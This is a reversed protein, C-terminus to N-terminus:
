DLNTLVVDLGDYADGILKVLQEAVAGIITISVLAISCLIVVYETLGQGREDRHLDTLTRRLRAQPSNKKLTSRTNM